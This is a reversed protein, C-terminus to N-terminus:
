HNIIDRLISIQAINWKTKGWIVLLKELYACASSKDFPYDQKRRKGKKEWLKKEGYFNLGCTFIVFWRVSPNHLVVEQINSLKVNNLRNNKKREHLDGSMSSFWVHSSSVETPPYPPYPSHTLRIVKKASSPYLQFSLCSLSSWVNGLHNWFVMKLGSFENEKEGRLGGAEVQLIYNLLPWCVSSNM